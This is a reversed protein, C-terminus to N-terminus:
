EIFERHEHSIRELEEPLGAVEPAEYLVAEHYLDNIQDESYGLVSLLTERNHEGLFPAYGRITSPTHSFKLPSGGMTMPGIFPQVKKLRM